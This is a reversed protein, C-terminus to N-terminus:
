RILTIDGKKTAKTGDFYEAEVTYAYVDMPQPNGKYTGDWGTYVDNTEFVKQGWRNYIRFTLKSIGFGRVRVIANEGFRGPTFANPVDLLPNVITEVPQCATDTCNYQNYVVLCAEFTGSSNYQHIVTDTTTKTATDGDGFFWKYLVGGTSGNNFVTPTNAVPPVPTTTFAAHPKAFISITAQTSDIINCTNSDIVVLKITYTGINPYLHGPSPDTSTGGDGFSWFYQQGGASTNNFIVSDPACGTAPIIFSAKVLPSVNIIKSVTDPSNCYNTDSLILKVNYSGAAAFNHNVSATGTTLVTGDGFDWVFSSNTFPVGAPPSSLNTFQYSLSQCPPLKADAFALVAPNNRARIHIYTTDSINCSTSDIAILRVLYTGINNYSHTVQSSVTASDPTGDGFNWIYSRANLVTDELLPTLTVCGSTDPRGNILSKLGASVGAFNFALKLGAENCGAGTIAGNNRYRAGATTPFKLNPNHDACNACIAEYITGQKDYRSTGGDVHESCCWESQTHKTDDQGFFSGYLLSSADRKIVIFYFDHNDTVSKLADPTTPMGLTGQLFYPDAGSGYFQGWGSVYVNQCQDVLFAVPSINPKAANVSGFTTSYIFKSLNTDLKSVFQKAGANSWAANPTVTWKGTTTGMVYPYGYKDFKLGYIMDIGSTGVYTSAILSAGSNSIRSVFGDIGGASNKQMVNAKNTGPFNTSETSGGVFLENTVPDIDMVFAVDNASGGLFSSFIVNTCTPNIKILAGDQTGGGFTPQFAAGRIPFDSSSQTCTAVYINGGGDVIVEGRSWDGYNRILSSVGLPCGVSPCGEDQDEINLGDNETGGILMSGIIGTGGANFETVFIDVRGCPGVKNTAPVIPFSTNSETRGFVILQGQANCVLSHPYESSSGGLYTAYAISSGTVNFKMIGIDWRGNSFNSSFAGPTTQYGFGDVIGAIFMSGDPGYTATFGWNDAKSGSFSCFIENPDIILTADPSYNKIKFKVTNNTTLVYKSEVETREPNANSLQYTSPITETLLGLSTKIQLKKNKANLKDVGDYHLAINDPNGGPHVIFNYKLMGNEAYYNLDINPYINKYTMAQFIRCHSAWKTPDNGIFYNNYTEIPKEPIIEPNENANEFSVRYQHSHVILKDNGATAKSAENTQLSKSIDEKAKASHHAHIRALDNADQLLVSFGNNHLYFAGNDMEARYSIQANWQGKNEVFQLPSSGNQASVTLAASTILFFVICHKKLM